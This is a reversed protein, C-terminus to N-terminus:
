TDGLIWEMTGLVPCFLHLGDKRGRPFQQYKLGKTTHIMKVVRCWSYPRQCLVNSHGCNWFMEQPPQDKRLAEWFLLNTQRSCGMHGLLICAPLFPLHILVPTALDHTVRLTHCRVSQLWFLCCLSFCPPSHIFQILLLSRWSHHIFFHQSIQAETCYSEQSVRGWCHSWFDPKRPAQTATLEAAQQLAWSSLTWVDWLLPNDLSVGPVSQLVLDYRSSFPLMAIKPTVRVVKWTKTYKSKLTSPM